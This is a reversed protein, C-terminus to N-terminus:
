IGYKEKFYKNALRIAEKLESITQLFSKLTLNKYSITLDRCLQYDEKDPFGQLSRELKEENPEDDLDLSLSKINKPIRQQAIDWNPAKNSTLDPSFFMRIKGKQYGLDKDHKKHVKINLSLRVNYTENTVNDIM